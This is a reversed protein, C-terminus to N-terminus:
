QPHDCYYCYEFGGQIGPCQEWDCFVRMCGVGVGCGDPVSYCEQGTGCPNLAYAPRATGFGAAFTTVALTVVIGLALKLLKM